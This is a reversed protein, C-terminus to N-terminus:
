RDPAAEPREHHVPQPVAHDDVHCVLRRQAAEHRHGRMAGLEGPHLLDQVRRQDRHGRRPRHMYHVRRRGGCPYRPREHLSELQKWGGVKLQDDVPQHHLAVDGQKLDLPEHVVIGYRLGLADLDLYGYPEQGATQQARVGRLEHEVTARVENLRDVGHEARQELGADNVM